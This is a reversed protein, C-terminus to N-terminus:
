QNYDADPGAQFIDLETVTALTENANTELQALLTERQLQLFPLNLFKHLYKLGFGNRMSSEAYRIQACGEPRIPYFLERDALPQSFMPVLQFIKM